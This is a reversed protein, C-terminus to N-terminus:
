LSLLRFEVNGALAGFCSGAPESRACAKQDPGSTDVSVSIGFSGPFRSSGVPSINRFDGGRAM